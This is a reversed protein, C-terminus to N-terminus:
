WGPSSSIVSRRPVYEVESDYETYYDDEYRSPRRGRWGENDDVYITERPPSARPPSERIYRVREVVRGVSRSRARRGRTREVFDLEDLDLSSSSSTSRKLLRGRERSRSRSRSVFAVQSPRRRLPRGDEDTVIRTRLPESISVVSRSRRLRRLRATEDSTDESDTGTQRCKRCVTQAPLQGQPIPHKYHFRPSRFRGCINCKYKLEDATPLRPPSLLRAGLPLSPYPEQFSPPAPNPALYYAPYSPAYSPYQPYPLQQNPDNLLPPQSYQGTDHIFAKSNEPTNNMTEALIPVANPPPAPLALLDPNRVPALAKLCRKSEARSLSYSRSRSRSRRFPNNSTGFVDALVSRASPLRTRKRVSMYRGNADREIWTRGYGREMFTHLLTTTKTTTIITSIHFHFSPITLFCRLGGLCLHRRM